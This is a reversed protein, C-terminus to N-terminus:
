PDRVTGARLAEILRLLVEQTFENVADQTPERRRAFSRIVGRFRACLTAEAQRDGGQARLVLTAVPTPGADVQGFAM